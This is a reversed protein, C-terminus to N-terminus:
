ENGNDIHPFTVLRTKHVVERAAFEAIKKGEKRLKEIEKVRRARSVMMQERIREMTAFVPMSRAELIWSNFRGAVNSRAGEAPMSALIDEMEKKTPRSTANYALAAIDVSKVAKQLKRTSSASLTCPASGSVSGRRCRNTRSWFFCNWNDQSEAKVLRSGLPFLHNAVDIGVTILLIGQYKSTLHTGDLAIYLQAQILQLVAHSGPNSERIARIYEPLKAFKEIDSGNIKDLAKAKARGPVLYDVQVLHDLHIDEKRHTPKYGQKHQIEGEYVEAVWRKNAHRNKQVVQSTSLYEEDM